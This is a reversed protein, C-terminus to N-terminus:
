WLCAVALAAVGRGAGLDGLGEPHKAKVVVPAGVAQELLCAMAPLAHAVRPSELLVTADVFSVEYGREAVLTRCRALLAISDAGLHAPDDDRFVDGIGGIGAAGLIADAVAHSLCDGDSHGILRPAPLLVGGLVLEGDSGFPHLDLGLGIRPPRLGRLDGPTTVKAASEEGDIVTVSYGLAEAGSAEDTGEWGSDVVARLVEARFGQPTQVRVVRSRDLTRVVTGEDVEKLTDSVALGPVVASAGRALEAVVARFLAISALPRAADHVLVLDHGPGLAALAKAVSESRTAGGETVIVDDLEVSAGAPRAVVITTAVSRAAAVAHEVLTRGGLRVFQKAGGFRSGSGAAVILVGVPM